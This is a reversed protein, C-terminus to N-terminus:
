YDGGRKGAWAARREDPLLKLLAPIAEATPGVRFQYTFRRLDAPADDPVFAGHAGVSNLWLLASNQRFPAESVLRCHKPDVWHPAASKDEHDEDVAYLQTGWEEPDGPRALYMLCTLFGWKPDRHPKITYGRRRLMIRGGSQNMDMPPGLPSGALTPWNAAIWEELTARFKDVMAPALVQPVIVWSLHKWIRRSYSPGMSLPVVLQQHNVPQDDFLEVPPLGRLLAKYFPTPFLNRVFAHPFPKMRLPAAAVAERIHQAIQDDAVLAALKESADELAADAEMIARLQSERLTLTALMQKIQGVSAILEAMETQRETRRRQLRTLSNGIRQLM